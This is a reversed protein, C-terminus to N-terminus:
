LVKQEETLDTTEIKKNKCWWFMCKLSAFIAYLYAPLICLAFIVVAIVLLFVYYITCYIIWFPVTLIMTLLFRSFCPKKTNYFLINLCTKKCSTDNKRNRITNFHKRSGVKKHFFEEVLIIITGFLIFPPALMMAVIIFPFRLFNPIKKHLVFLNAIACAPEMFNHFPAELDTGCVWCWRYKCITCSM